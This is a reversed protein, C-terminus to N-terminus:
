LSPFLQFVSLMLLKEDPLGLASQEKGRRQRYSSLFFFNSQLVITAQTGSQKLEFECPNDCPGLLLSPGTKLKSALSKM